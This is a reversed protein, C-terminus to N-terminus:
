FVYYVRKPKGGLVPASSGSVPTKYKSFTFRFLDSMSMTSIFGRPVSLTVLGVKWVSLLLSLIVQFQTVTQVYGKSYLRHDSCSRLLDSPGAANPGFRGAASRHCAFVGGLTGSTLTTRTLCDQEILYGWLPCSVYWPEDETVSPNGAQTIEATRLRQASGRQVWLGALRGSGKFHM